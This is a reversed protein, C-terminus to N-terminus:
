ILLCPTFEVPIKRPHSTYLFLSSVDRPVERTYLHRPRFAKWRPQPKHRNTIRRAPILGHGSDIRGGVDPNGSKPLQGGIVGSRHLFDNTIFVSRKEKKHSKSQQPTTPRRPFLESVLEAKLRKALAAAYTIHKLSALSDCPKPNRCLVVNSHNPCGTEMAKNLM